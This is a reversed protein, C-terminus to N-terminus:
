RSINIVSTKSLLAMVEEKVIEKIKEEERKSFVPPFDPM